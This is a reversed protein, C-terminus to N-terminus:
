KKGKSSKKGWSKGKGQEGCAGPTPRCSPYKSRKEDGSRGCPKCKKRGTKSDKRCTNCDVWGGKKGPAGKRKFWDRLNSEKSSESGAKKKKNELYLQIEEEIISEIIKIEEDDGLIYDGDEHQGVNKMKKLADKIEEETADIEKKFPDMGSAGGEDRLVKELNKDTLEKKAEEITSLKTYYQPDEYVHDMAIEHAVEEDTTHEMEIKVGKTVQDNIEEVSVGHHDAIQSHKDEMSGKLKATLGGPIREKSGGIYIRIEEDIIANIDAELEENKKKSKNGWNKAGVKRCKVLAGSAYASPWVDYRARVKHYCADKKGKSKKKKRGKKEELQEPSSLQNRDVNAVADNLMENIRGHMQDLIKLFMLGNKKQSVSDFASMKMPVSAEMAVRSPVISLNSVTSKDGGTNLRTSVFPTTKINYISINPLPNPETNAAYQDGFALQQQRSDAINQAETYVEELIKLTTSKIFYPLLKYVISEAKAKARDGRRKTTDIYGNSYRSTTQGDRLETPWVSDIFEQPLEARFTTSIEIQDGEGDFIKINEFKTRKIDGVIDITEERAEPILRYLATMDLWDNPDQYKKVLVETINYEIDEVSENTPFEYGESDGSYAYNNGESIDLRFTFQGDDDYEVEYIVSPNDHNSNFRNAVIRPNVDFEEDTRYNVFTSDNHNLVEQFREALMVGIEHGEYESGEPDTLGNRLLDNIGEPSFSMNPATITAYLTFRVASDDYGYDDGITAGFKINDTDYFGNDVKERLEEYERALSNEPPNAEAHNWIAEMMRGASAFPIGTEDSMFSAFDAVDETYNDYPADHRDWFMEFSVSDQNGGLQVAIKAYRDDPHKTDDKIFYFIKQQNTIYDNFYDNGDQAICWKTKAGFYCSSEVSDPRVVFFRDDEYVVTGEGADVFAQTRPNEGRLKRARAIRPEIVDKHIAMGIEDINQYQNIDKKKLRNQNKIFDDVSDIIQSIYLDLMAPKVNEGMQKVYKLAQKAMWDAYKYNNEEDADLLRMVSDESYDDLVAYKKQINEKRGEMLLQEANARLMAEYQEKLTMKEMAKKIEEPKISLDDMKEYQKLTVWKYDNHEIVGSEPNEKFEIKGSYNKTTFFHRFSDPVNKAKLDSVKLGTEEFAERKAAEKPEEGDEIHGGPLDWHLPHTPATKTRNIILFRDQDDIIIVNAVDKKKM